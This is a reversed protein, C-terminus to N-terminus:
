KQKPTSDKDRNTNINIRGPHSLIGLMPVTVETFPFCRNRRKGIYQWAGENVRVGEPQPDSQLSTQVRGILEGVSRNLRYIRATPVLKLDDPHSTPTNADVTKTVPHDGHLTSSTEDPLPLTVKDEEIATVVRAQAQKAQSGTKSTRVSKKHM